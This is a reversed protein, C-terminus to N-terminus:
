GGFAYADMAVSRHEVGRYLARPAGGAGLAFFLPLLHEDTPHNERGFPALREWDLLADVDHEALREDFWDRFGDVWHPVTGDGRGLEYLNHTLSGSGIVLVKDDAFAAVARGLAYHDRADGGPLVSLQVVPVDREPYMALLPVWAGHDIGPAADLEAAIGADRIKEFVAEALAPDGDVDYRLEYLPAPFGRFDHVTQWAPAAGVKVARGPHHASMMLVARPRPLEAAIRRWADPAPSGDILVSPGGHSIFLSPLRTM